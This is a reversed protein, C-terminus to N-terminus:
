IEEKNGPKGMREKTPHQKVEMYKHDKWITEQLQSLLNMTNHDSFIFPIIYIKKYKNLGLKHGLIHDIRSFIGHANLFLTYETSKPHFTRFIDTFDMHDLTDNLIM